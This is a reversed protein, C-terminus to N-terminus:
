STLATATDFVVDGVVCACLIVSCERVGVYMHGM